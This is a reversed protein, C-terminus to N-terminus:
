FFIFNIVAAAAAAVVHKAEAHAAVVHKAEAHAAEAARVVVQGADEADEWKHNLGVKLQIQCTEM